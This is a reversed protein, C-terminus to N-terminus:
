KLLTCISDGKTEDRVGGLDEVKGSLIKSLGANVYQCTMKNTLAYKEEHLLSPSLLCTATVLRRCDDMLAGVEGVCPGGACGHACGTPVM